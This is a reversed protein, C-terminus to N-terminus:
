ENRGFRGTRNGRGGGATVFAEKKRDRRQYLSKENMVRYPETLKMKQSLKDLIEDRKESQTLLNVFAITQDEEVAGEM